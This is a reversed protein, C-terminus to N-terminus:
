CSLGMAPMRRKQRKTWYILAGGALFYIFCGGFYIANAKLDNDHSANVPYSYVTMIFILVVVYTLFGWIALAGLAQLASKAQRMKDRRFNLVGLVLIVLPTVGM